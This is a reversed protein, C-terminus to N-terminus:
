PSELVDDRLHVPLSVARKVRINLQALDANVDDDDLLYVIFPGDVLAVGHHRRHRLVAVGARRLHRGLLSLRQRVPRAHGARARRGRRVQAHSHHEQAAARLQRRTLQTFVEARDFGTGRARQARAQRAPEAAPSPHWTPKSALGTTRLEREMQLDRRQQKLRQLLAKRYAM